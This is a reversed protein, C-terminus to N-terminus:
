RRRRLALGLGLFGLLGVGAVGAHGSACGCTKPDEEEDVDAYEYDV